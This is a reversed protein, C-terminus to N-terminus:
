AGRAGTRGGPDRSARGERVTTYFSNDDPLTTRQARWPDVASHSARQADALDQTLRGGLFGRYWRDLQRQRDWSTWQAFNTFRDDEAWEKFWQPRKLEAAGHWTPDFKQAMAPCYGPMCHAALPDERRRDDRCGHCLWRKVGDYKLCSYCYKMDNFRKGHVM